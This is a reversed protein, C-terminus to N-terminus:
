SGDSLGMAIAADLKKAMETLLGHLAVIGEQNFTFGCNLMAAVELRRRIDSTAETWTNEVTTETAM